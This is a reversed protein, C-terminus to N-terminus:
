ADKPEVEWALRLAGLLTEPKAIIAQLKQRDGGTVSMLLEFLRVVLAAHQDSSLTRPIEPLENIVMIARVAVDAMAAPVWPETMKWRWNSYKEPPIASSGETVPPRDIVAPTGPYTARAADRLTNGEGQLGASQQEEILRLVSAPPRYERRQGTRGQSPVLRSEWDESVARDHIRRASRPYKHLALKALEEATWWRPADSNADKNMRNNRVVCRADM